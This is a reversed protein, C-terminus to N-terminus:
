LVTVLWTYRDARTEHSYNKGYYNFSLEHKKFLMQVDNFLPDFEKRTYLEVTYSISQKQITNDSFFSNASGNERWVVYPYKEKQGFENYVPISLENLIDMFEKSTTNQLSM